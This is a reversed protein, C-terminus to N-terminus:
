LDRCFSSVSVGGGRYSRITKIKKEVANEVEAKYKALAATAQDKSKLMYV